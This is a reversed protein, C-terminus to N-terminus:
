KLSRNYKVTFAGFPASKNLTPPTRLEITFHKMTMPNERRITTHERSHKNIGHYRQLLAGSGIWNEAIKRRSRDCCQESAIIQDPHRLERCVTVRNYHQSPRRLLSPAFDIVRDPRHFRRFTPFIPFTEAVIHQDIYVSVKM